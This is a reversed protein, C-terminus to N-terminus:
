LTASMFIMLRNVDYDGGSIDSDQREFEYTIGTDLWRRIAYRGELTFLHVQTNTEVETELDESDDNTFEYGASTSFRELWAQTWGVGATTSLTVDGVSDAEEFTQGTYVNVRSHSALEWDWIIRWSPASTEEGTPLVERWQYGVTGDLTSRGRPDWTMGLQVEQQDSDRELPDDDLYRTRIESVGVSFSTIGSHRYRFGARVEDDDYNFGERDGDDYRRENHSAGASLQGRASPAGFFYDGSYGRIDYEDNETVSQGISIGTGREETEWGYYGALRFRNRRTAVLNLEADARGNTYDDETSDFYHGDELSLALNASHDRYDTHFAVEAQTIIGNSADDSDPDETRGPNDNFEYNVRVFPIVDVPGMRVSNRGGVTGIEWPARGSDVASAYESNGGGNSAEAGGRNNGAGQSRPATVASAGSSAGQSAGSGTGAEDAALGWPSYLAIVAGSLGTALGKALGNVLCYGISRVGNRRINRFICHTEQTNMM